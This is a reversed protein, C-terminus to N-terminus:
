FSERLEPGDVGHNVRCLQHPKLILLVSLCELLLGESFDCESLCRLKISYTCLKKERRGVCGMNISAQLM